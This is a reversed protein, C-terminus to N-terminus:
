DLAGFEDMQRVMDELSDEMPRYSMGLEKQAKASSVKLPWGINRGISRRTMAKNMIWVRLTGRHMMPLSSM